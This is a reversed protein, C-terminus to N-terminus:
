VQFSSSIVISLKDVIICCYKDFFIEYFNHNTKPSLYVIYFTSGSTYCVCVIYVNVECDRRAYLDTFQLHKRKHRRNNNNAMHPHSQKLFGFVISVFYGFNHCHYNVRFQYVTLLKCSTIIFTM